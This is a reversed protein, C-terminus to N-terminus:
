NGGTVGPSPQGCLYLEHFVVGDIEAARRRCFQALLLKIRSRSWGADHLAYWPMLDNDLEYVRAAFVRGGGSLQRHVLDPLDEIRSNSEPGALVMNMLMLREVDPGDSDFSLWKQRDWGPLIEMDGDNFLSAHARKRKAYETDSGPMVANLTNVILLLSCLIGLAAILPVLSPFGLGCGSRSSLISGTQGHWMLVLLWVAPVTQFWFIEDGVNWLFNFLALAAIWVVMFRVAPERGFARFAFYLAGANVALVAPMAIVSAVIRGWQPIFEFERDFAIVSLVTGLGASDLLSGVFLNFGVMSLGQVVGPMTWKLGYFSNLESHGKGEYSSLWVLFGNDSDSLLYGAVFIPFGVAAAAVYFRVARRIDFRRWSSSSWAVAVGAAIVLFLNSFMIATALALLAGMSHISRNAAKSDVRSGLLAFYGGMAGLLFPMQIMFYYQSVAVALFTASAFLATVSLLRVVPQSVGARIIIGHFVLLSAVTSVGSIVAFTTLPELAPWGAQLLRHLGYGFPDFILHNPNWALTGADIQRVIRLADGHPLTQKFAVLYGASLLLILARELFLKASSM